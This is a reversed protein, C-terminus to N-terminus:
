TILYRLKTHVIHINNTKLRINIKSLVVFKIM